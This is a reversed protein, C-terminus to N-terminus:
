RPKRVLTETRVRHGEGAKGEGLIMVSNDGTRFELASGTVTGQVEDVVKPLAGASGTMVFRGDSATYVLRDGSAHRGPESVDVTGTATIRDVTGGLLGMGAGKVAKTDPSTAGGTLLAIIENARVTGDADELVVGGGFEARHDADSYRLTRSAIRMVQSRGSTGGPAKALVTRIMQPGSTTAVLTKAEQDLEIAPAEVQSGGQWLRAAAGPAGFFVGHGVNRKMQARAALIHVPNAGPSQVYTVAVRGEASADGSARFVTVADARLVSGAQRVEAEGRITLTGPGEDFVAERGRASTLLPAASGGAGHAPLHTLSVGGSQVARAISPPPAAGPLAKGGAVSKQAAATSAFSVELTDGRSTDDGGAVDRRELSTHGTGTVHNLRAASGDWEMEAALVDGRVESSSEEDRGGRAVRDVLLMRAAGTARGDRIWQRKGSTAFRADLTKGSITRESWPLGPSSRQKVQLEAGGEMSIDRIVGGADFRATGAEARGKSERLAETSGYTLGGAMHVVEPRNAASVSVSATQGRLVGPGGELGVGGRAEIRDVSGDDRMHIVADQATAIRGADGKTERGGVGAFYRAHVLSLQRTNRDMEARSATLLLPAGDRLGSVRVDSQLVTVGTDSNYDAGKAHGNMGHFQFEIEQDTSAVGLSQVFVLGSTKIHVMRQDDDSHSGSVDQGSAYAARGRTDTPAPAQLDLHVEGVARVVGAKQDYEFESGYIRDALDQKQGYLVIGVDRLTTKGNKYQVLKAAHITYITKGGKGSQSYVFGNSERMIDVGLRAPLDKLFRHARFHAYELFGAIVLVLLGAGALLWLRLREVSVRM